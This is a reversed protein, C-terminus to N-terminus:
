EHQLNEQLWSQLKDIDPLARNGDYRIYERDIVLREISSLSRGDRAVAPAYQLMTGTSMDTDLHKQLVGLVRPWYIVNQPHSLKSLLAEIVQQQRSARQYDDDAHRTRAYILAEQGDMHQAGAEFEVVMTGGDDTPYEYDVISKPVDIEIGDVADVIEVFGEFDLRATYNIEIGFTNEITAVMEDLGSGSKELEANRVIVNAPMWGFTPSNLYLDRPISLLAIKEGAPNISLIMITDTRAIAAENPSADPRTDDGLILINTSEPPNV